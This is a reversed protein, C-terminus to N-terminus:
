RRGSVLIVCVRDFVMKFWKKFLGSALERFNLIISELSQLVRNISSWFSYFVDHIAEM